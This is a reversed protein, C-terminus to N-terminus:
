EIGQGDTRKKTILLVAALLTLISGLVYFITTGPGGTSPLVIDYKSNIIQIESEPEANTVSDIQTPTTEHTVPDETVVIIKPTTSYGPDTVEEIWYTYTDTGNTKELGDIHLKWENGTGKVTRRVEFPHAGDPNEQEDYKVSKGTKSVSDVMEGSGTGAKRWLYFQISDIQDETDAEPTGGNLSWLKTVDLYTEDLTNTIATTTGSTSSATRWFKHAKALIAEREEEAEPLQAEDVSVQGNEVKYPVGDYVFGTEAVHYTFAGTVTETAASASDSQQENSSGTDSNTEVAVQTSGFAELNPWEYGWDKETVTVTQTEFGADPKDDEGVKVTRTLEYTISSIKGDDANTAGSWEKTVEAETLETNTIDNGTQSVAYGAPEVTFAEGDKTVTYWQTDIIFKAEVVEYEYEVGDDTYKPLNSYTYANDTWSPQYLHTTEDHLTEVWELDATTESEIAIETTTGDSRTLKLTIDEANKHTGSVNWIKSGSITVKPINNTITKEDKNWATPAFANAIAEGELPEKGSAETFTVKTEEVSYNADYWGATVDDATTVTDGGAADLWYKTPLKDWSAKKDTTEVTVNVPNQFAEIEAETAYNTLDTKEVAKKVNNVTRYLTFEVSQVDEPWTIVQDGSKWAKSAEVETTEKKNTYTATIASTNVITGSVTKTGDESVTTGDSGDVTTQYGDQDMSVEKVVFTTDKPLKTFEAKEGGKLKFTITAVGEAFTIKNEQATEITNTTGIRYVGRDGAMGTKNFVVEFQFEKDSEAEVGERIKEVTLSGASYSNEVEVQVKDTGDTPISGTIPTTMATSTYGESSYDTESISYSTGAPLDKVTATENHKLSVTITGDKNKNKDPQESDDSETWDLSQPASSPGPLIEVDYSNALSENEPAQLRIKFEFPKNENADDGSVTKKLELDGTRKVNEVDVNVPEIKIPDSAGGNKTVFFGNTKGNVNLKNGESDTEFVYYTAGITLKDYVVTGTASGNVVKIEKVTGATAQTAEASEFLGVYFTLDDHQTYDATNLKVTKTVQLKGLQENTFEVTLNAPTTTKTMEGTSENYTVVVTVPKPAIDYKINNRIAFGATKEEPTAPDVNGPLNETVKYTYTATFVRAPETGTVNSGTRGTNAADTEVQAMTYTIVGFSFSGDAVSTATEGGTTPMPTGNEATLTFKYGEKNESGTVTKTGRIQAMISTDYTNTFAKADVGYSETANEGDDDKVDTYTMKASLVGNTKTVEVKVKVEKQSYTVGNITEGAHQEKITFYFTGEDKFTIDKFTATQQAKTAKATKDDNMVVKDGYAADATINFTFEESDGWDRGTLAKTAQPAVKVESYVNTFEVQKTEGATGITGTQPPTTILTWGVPLTGETISYGTGKPLNDIEWSEGGKLTVTIASAPNATGEQATGTKPTKVTSYSADFTVGDPATLTVTFTFEENSKDVGTDNQVTKLVKLNVVDKNNTFSATPIGSTQDEEVEIEIDNGGTLTIGKAALGNVDETVTYNGVPLNDLKAVTGDKVITITAPVPAGDLAVASVAGNQITVKVRASYGNAMGSGTVDFYYDGDVLDTDTNQDNVTVTKSIKLAGTQQQYKNTVTVEGTLNSVDFIVRGTLDSDTSTFNYGDLTVNQNGDGKVETVVYEGLELKKIVLPKNVSVDLLTEEDTLTGDPKVYQTGKMVTVKYTKANQDAAGEIVKKVTLEGSPKEKNKILVTSGNKVNNPEIPILEFGDVSEETIYYKYTVGAEGTEPLKSVVSTWAAAGPKVRINSEAFAEDLAITADNYTMTVQGVRVDDYEDETPMVADTPEGLVTVKMPLSADTLIDGNLVVNGSVNNIFITKKKFRATWSGGNMPVDFESISQSVLEGGSVVSITGELTQNSASTAEIEIKINSGKKLKLVGDQADGTLGSISQHNWDSDTSLNVARYDITYDGNHTYTPSWTAPYAVQYLNYVIEGDTKDTIETEGDAAFWKKDVKLKKDVNTITITDGDVSYEADYGAGNQEVLYYSYVTSSTGGSFEDSEAQWKNQKSLELRQVPMGEVAAAEEQTLVQTRHVNEATVNKVDLAITLIQGDGYTFNVSELSSDVIIDWYYSSDEEDVHTEYKNERNWQSNPCVLPKEKQSELTNNNQFDSVAATVRITDGPLCLVNTKTQSTVGQWGIIKVSMLDDTSREVDGDEVLKGSKIVGSTRYVDVYVTDTYGMDNTVDNGAVDVWKKKAKVTVMSKVSNPRNTIVALTNGDDDITYTYKPTYNQAGDTEEVTYKYYLPVGSALFKVTPLGVLKGDVISVGAPLTTVTTSLIWPADAAASTDKTATFEANPFYGSESPEAVTFAKNYYATRYVKVKVPDTKTTDEDLTDNQWIKRVSLETKGLADPVEEEHSTKFPIVIVSKGDIQAPSPQATSNEAQFFVYYVEDSKEYGEPAKTEKVGYITDYAVTTGDPSVALRGRNNTTYTKVPDAALAGSEYAFVGFEANALKLDKLQGGAYDGYKYIKFESPVEYRNDIDVEHHTVNHIDDESIVVTAYQGTEVSDADAKVQYTKVTVHQDENVVEEVKYTGAELDGITYTDSIFEALTITKIKVWNEDKQKYVEFKVAAKQDDDLESLNKYTGSVTKKIDLVGKIPYNKVTLVDGNFFTWPQIIAGSGDPAEIYKNTYNVYGKQSILFSYKTNDIACGEPAKVEQLYYRQEPRLNWGTVDTDGQVLVDGTDSSVVIYDDGNRMKMPTGSVINGEEDVEDVIFLKFEAGALKQSNVYGNAKYLKVGYNIATGTTTGSYQAYDDVYKEYGDLDATNRYHIYGNTDAEGVAKAMYTITTKYGDPLYFTMTDDQMNFYPLKVDKGTEDKGYKPNAAYSEDNVTVVIDEYHASLNKLKDKLVLVDSNEVLDLKAANVVITFPIKGDVADGKSKSLINPTYEVTTEDNGLASDISNGMVVTYGTSSLAARLLANKDKVKMRYTLKYFQYWEDSYGWTGSAEDIIKWVKPVNSASVTFTMTNGSIVPTLKSANGMNADQQTPSNGGLIQASGSVYELRSDFTDTFTITPNETTFSEPTIKNTVVNFDFYYEGDNGISMSSGTKKLMPQMPTGEAPQEHTDYIATNIRKQDVSDDAMWAENNKTKIRFGIQHKDATTAPIGGPWSIKLTGDGQDAITPASLNYDNDLYEFSGEVYSDVYQGDSSRPLKEIVYAKDATLGIAPVGFWIEWTIEDSTVGKQYKNLWTKNKELPGVTGTGTHPDPDNTQTENTITVDEQLTSADYETTYTIVYKWYKGTNPYGPLQSMDYRWGTATEKNTVGVQSWPLPVTGKLEGSLEDYVMVTVYDGSYHAGPTKITDTVTTLKWSPKAAVDASHAEITWPTTAIGTTENKSTTGASKSGNKHEVIHWLKQDTTKDLYSVRNNTENGGYAGSTGEEQLKSKDLTAKYKIYYTGNRLAGTNMEFGTSDQSTVSWGTVAQNESNYMQVSGTKFTLPSNTETFKDTITIGDNDGDSTLKLTYEVEGTDFNTVKAEKSITASPTSDVKYDGGVDVHYPTGGEKKDFIVDAKIKIQASNIATLKSYNPDSSNLQIYVKNGDVRIHNGQVTFSGTADEGNIDFPDTLNDLTVGQPLTYCMEATDHFQLTTTEDFQINVSYPKGPKVTYSGDPNQTAGSVDFHTVLRNLDTINEIDTITISYSKEDVTVTLVFTDHFAEDSTLYWGDEKEELYLAKESGGVDITRALSVQGIEGTVGIESMIDAIRYSGEGPWKWAITEGTEPDTYEFDVTYRIVYESFGDTVFSVKGNEVTADEILEAKIEGDVEHIHFLEYTVQANEPVEITHPVTVAFSGEAVYDDSPATVAVDFASFGIEKKEETQEPILNYIEALEDAKESLDEYSASAGMPLETDGLAEIIAGDGLVKQVSAQYGTIVINITNEGDSLVVTGDATVRIEGNEVTLGDDASVVDMLGWSKQVLSDKNDATTYDVSLEGYVVNDTGETYGQELEAIRVAVGDNLATIVSNTDFDVGNKVIDTFDLKVTVENNDTTYEVTYKLVFYSFSDTTFDVALLSGDEGCDVSVPLTDAASNHIHYLTYEVNTATANGPLNDYINVNEPRVVVGVEGTESRQVGDDLLSIDFVAYDSYQGTTENGASAGALARGSMAASSTSMMGPQYAGSLIADLRDVVSQKNVNENYVIELNGSLSNDGVPVITVNDNEVIAVEAAESEEDSEQVEEAGDEDKIEEVETQEEANEGAKETEEEVTEEADKKEEAVEGEAKIEPAEVAEAEEVVETQEEAKSATIAIIYAAVTESEMGVVVIEGKEFGELATIVYDGDENLAVSLVAEDSKAASASDIQDLQIGLAELVTSLLVERSDGLEYTYKTNEEDTTEVEITEGEIVEGEISEGETVEGEIVEGEIPADIMEAEAESEDEAAIEEEGEVEFITDDIETADEGSVPLAEEDDPTFLLDIDDEDGRDDADGNQLEAMVEDVADDVDSIEVSTDEDDESIFEVPSALRVQADLPVYEDIRTSAKDEATPRQQYCADTHVHEELGCALEGDADYCSEDHVHQAIGCTAIRELTDANLKLTNMTTLLVFASLMAVFRRLRGTRVRRTILNEFSNTQQRMDIM